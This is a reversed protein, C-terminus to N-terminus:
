RSDGLRELPPQPSSGKREPSTAEIREGLRERIGRPLSSGLYELALARLRTNDTHLARLSTRVSNQPLVLELLAFVHALNRSSGDAAPLQRSQWVSSSVALEREIIRYVVAPDPRFEPHQRLMAALQRSCRFRVELRQDNLGDFLGDWARQTGCAALLRPIRRRVTDGLTEDALADSLQGVIRFSTRALAAHAAHGVSDSGLLRIVQPVLVQDLIGIDRLLEKVRRADGSRLEAFQQLQVDTLGSEPPPVASGSASNFIGSLSLDEMDTANLGAANNALNKQIVLSYARDLRFSLWAAIGSVAAVLVLICYPVAVAPLGLILQVAAYGAGDGARDAGIDIMSKASRKEAMPMPAYFLEYGSRFLSGRLVQELARTLGLVVAGPSILALLSAGAVGVPLTAVTRALGFRNLWFRSAVIQALFSGASTIAWFVAFFRTLPVGRGIHLQSQQKFLFDLAAAAMSVLAVLGAVALLYPADALTKTLPRTEEQMVSLRPQPFRLLMAGCGIQLVLLLVLVAANSFLSAVEGALLGGCVAGLTGYAAIPGFKQRAEVPDFGESALAWFGSLLVPGLAVVHVYIAASVPGPFAPLLLWEAAHLAVSLLYAGPIVRFPGLRHLLKASLVALLVAGVAASVAMAPLSRADFTSLFLSDRITKSAVQWAMMLGAAAAADRALRAGPDRM